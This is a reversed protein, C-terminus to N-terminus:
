RKPRPSARPVGLRDPLVLDFLAKGVGLEAADQEPHVQSPRVLLDFRARLHQLGFLDRNASLTLRDNPDQDALARGYM